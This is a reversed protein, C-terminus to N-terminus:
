RPPAFREGSSRIASRRSPASFVSQKLAQVSRKKLRPVPYDRNNFYLVFHTVGEPVEVRWEVQNHDKNWEFM